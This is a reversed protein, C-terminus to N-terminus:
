GPTIRSFRIHLEDACLRVLIVDRETAENDGGERDAEALLGMGHLIMVNGKRLMQEAKELVDGKHLMREVRELVDEKRLM